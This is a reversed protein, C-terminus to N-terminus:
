VKTEPGADDSHFSDRLRGMQRCMMPGYVRSYWSYSRGKLDVRAIYTVRSHGSKPEILFRQDLVTAPLGGLLQTEASQVSREAIACAGRIETLQSSHFRVLFCDRTPHGVTDNVVYQHIDTDPANVMEVTRWNVVSTDWVSREKMVRQMVEKPPAAVDVWVRLTKLPHSDVAKKSSLELGDVMAEVTWSKWRDGHDKVMDLVRDILFSRPGKLGLDKLAPVDDEFDARDEIADPVMFITRAYTIMMSLCEQCARTEKMERETPMGSAGITKHRRTSSVKDLRSASLQFLSPTFCVALNRAPMNNIDNFKDVDHLFLLLTQIAERNEDPLLLLAYQITTLREVEPVHLFINAFIESCRVTMLPEPLERLYQKLLDAVDHVQGSDLRNEDVFVDGDSDRDCIARLEAIRSKVGNKRFIGVTEPAMQRLYRLVELISRPLCLGTRRSITELSVGFVSTDDNDKITKVEGNKIKKIFKQVSWHKSTGNPIAGAAAAAHDAAAFVGNLKMGGAGMAKELAATVRLYALKRTRTLEIISLSDICRSMEVDTFFSEDASTTSSALSSSMNNRENFRKKGNQWTGTTSSNASHIISSLPSTYPLVSQRVRQASPGSPSRSLSSGVGSDRRRHLTSSLAEEDTHEVSSESKQTDVKLHSSHSTSPSDLRTDVTRRQRLEPSLDHLYYGDPQIILNHATPPTASSNPAPPPAQSQVRYGSSYPGDRAYYSPEYHHSSRPLRVSSPTTPNNSRGMSRNLSNPSGPYLYADFPTRQRRTSASSGVTDGYDYTHQKPLQMRNHHFDNYVSGRASPPPMSCDRRRHSASSSTTASMFSDDASSSEPSSPTLMVMGQRRASKSRPQLTSPGYTSSTPYFPRGREALNNPRASQIMRMSEPSASDYSLLVPDGIVLPHNTERQRSEKRRRSNSRLDMKKMIARARERIRESQSRQLKSNVGNASPTLSSTPSGNTEAVNSTSQGIHPEHRADLPAEYWNTRTVLRDSGGPHREMYPQYNPKTSVLQGHAGYIPENAPVRSWTHSQRQYQWNGSLAVHDDEDFGAYRYDDNRRRMVVNDVKMIACRNLTDLRRYLARLSDTGLFEHDKQVAVLDIPFLGEEFQRVYQPFGAQKLWAFCEEADKEAMKLAFSTRPEPSTADIAGECSGTRGLSTQEVFLLNPFKSQEVVVGTTTSPSSGTQSRLSNRPSADSTPPLGAPKPTRHLVLPSFQSSTTSPKRKDWPMNDYISDVVQGNGSRRGINQRLKTPLSDYNGKNSRITSKNEYKELEKQMQVASPEGYELLLAIGEDMQQYLNLNDRQKRESKDAIQAVERDADDTESSSELKLSLPRFGGDSRPTSIPTKIDRLAGESPENIWDFSSSRSISFPTTQTGADQPSLDNRFCSASLPLDTPRDAASFRTDEITRILAAVVRNVSPKEETSSTLSPSSTAMSASSRQQPEKKARGEARKKWVTLADDDEGIVDLQKQSSWDTTKIVPISLRPSDKSERFDGYVSQSMRAISNQLRRESESLVEEHRMKVTEFAGKAPNPAQGTSEKSQGNVLDPVTKPLFRTRKAPIPPANEKPPQIPETPTRRLFSFPSSSEPPLSHRQARAEREKLKALCTAEFELPTTEPGVTTPSLCIPTGGGESDTPSGVLTPANLSDERERGAELDFASTTFLHNSNLNIASTSMGVAWPLSTTSEVLESPEFLSSTMRTSPPPIHLSQRHSVPSPTKKLQKSFLNAGENELESQLTLDVRSSPLSELEALIQSTWKSVSDRNTFDINEGNLDRVSLSRGQDRLGNEDLMNLHSTSAANQQQSRLLRSARRAAPGRTTPKLRPSSERRALATTSASLGRSREQFSASRGPTKPSGLRRRPTLPAEEDSSSQPGVALILGTEPEITVSKRQKRTFRRRRLVPREDIEDLDKRQRNEQAAIESLEAASKRRRLVAEAENAASLKQGVSPDEAHLESASKSIDRQQYKYRKQLRQKINVPGSDGRSAISAWMKTESRIIDFRTAFCHELVVSIWFIESAEHLPSM